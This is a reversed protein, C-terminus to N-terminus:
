VTEHAVLTPVMVVGKEAVDRAIAELRQLPLRRWELMAATWGAFFEAHAKVLRDTDASAAETVGSLHEISTVGAYAAHTATTRGLHAAVPVGRAKAESVVVTLLAPEVRPSVAIVRAGPEILRRVAARAEGVTTVVAAAAPDGGPGDVIPGSALVRPRDLRSEPALPSVDASSGHLDRVTTVGAELFLPLTWPQLRVHADILGPVITLGEAEIVRRAPADGPGRAPAALPQVIEISGNRIVVSALRTVRGDGHVVRANRILIDAPAQRPAALLVPCWGAAALSAAIGLSVARIRPILRM